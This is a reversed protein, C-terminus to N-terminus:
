EYHNFQTIITTLELQLDNIFIYIKETAQGYASLVNIWCSIQFKIVM